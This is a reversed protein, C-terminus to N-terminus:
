GGSLKAPYGLATLKLLLKERHDGQIELRDEQASGGTGCFAKLEKLLTKLTEPRQEFPGILTVTKGGRGKRSTQIRLDHEAPTKEPQPRELAADNGFERYVTRDGRSSGFSDGGKAKSKKGM